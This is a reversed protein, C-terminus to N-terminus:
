VRKVKDKSFMKSIHKYCNMCIHHALKANGCIPCNQINKLNQLGKNSARQRKRRRSTKKKPVAKLISGLWESLRGWIGQSFPSSQSTISSGPLHTATEQLSSADPRIAISSLSRRPFNLRGSSFSPVSRFWFNNVRLPRLQNLLSAM